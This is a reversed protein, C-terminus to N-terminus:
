KAGGQIKKIEISEVFAQVRTRMQGISSSINYPRNVGLVPYGYDDQLITSGLLKEYAWPDCFKIQEYIIGDADYKKLFDGTRDFGTGCLVQLIDLCGGIMRGSFSCEATNEQM